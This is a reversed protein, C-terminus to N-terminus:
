VFGDFVGFQAQRLTDLNERVERIKGDRVAFYFVYDNEYERGDALKANLTFLAVVEDGEAILKLASIRFSDSQYVGVGNTLVDMIGEKGVKPNPKIMPNSRPVRWTADDAFLDPLRVDKNAGLIVDFYIQVVSKSDM